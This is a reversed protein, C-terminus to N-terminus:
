RRRNEQRFAQGLAKRLEAALLRDAREIGYAFWGRKANQVAGYFAPEGNYTNRDVFVRLRGAESVNARKPFSRVRLSSQLNGTRRGLTRPGSSSLAAEVFKSRYNHAIRPLKESMSYFAGDVISEFADRKSLRGSTTVGRTM